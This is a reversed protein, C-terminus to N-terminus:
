PYSRAFCRNAQPAIRRPRKACAVAHTTGDAFQLTLAVESGPMPAEKLEMLMLHTGGSELKLAGGAPIAVSEIHTMHLLGDHNMTSHLWVNGAIPTTAGTLVVEQTGTNTLTMYASANAVGPPLGRIWANEVVVEACLPMSALLIPLVLLQPFKM